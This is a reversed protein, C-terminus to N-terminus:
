LEQATGGGALQVPGTYVNSTAATTAGSQVDATTNAGTGNGPMVQTDPIQGAASIKGSYGPPFAVQAFTLNYGKYLCYGWYGIAYGTWALAIGLFTM